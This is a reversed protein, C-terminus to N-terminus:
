RRSPWYVEILFYVVKLSHAEPNFVPVMITVCSATAIIFTLLLFNFILFKCIASDVDSQFLPEKAEKERFSSSIKGTLSHTAMYERSYMLKLLGIVFTNYSNARVRTAAAQFYIDTM